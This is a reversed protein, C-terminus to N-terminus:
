FHTLILLFIILREKNTEKNIVGHMPYLEKNWVLKIWPNFDEKLIILYM